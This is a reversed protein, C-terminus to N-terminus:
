VFVNYKRCSYCGSLTDFAAATVRELVVNVFGLFDLFYDKNVLYCTHLHYIITLHYLFERMGHFKLIEVLAVHM